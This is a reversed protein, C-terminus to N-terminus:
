PAPPSHGGRDELAGRPTDGPALPAGQYRHQAPPPPPDLWYTYYSELTDRTWAPDHVWYLAHGSGDVYELAVHRNQSANAKFRDAHRYGMWTDQHSHLALLPAKVRGVLEVSQNLARLADYGFGPGLERVLRDRYVRWSLRPLYDSLGFTAIEREGLGLGLERDVLEVHDRLAKLFFAAWPYRIQDLGTGKRDIERALSEPDFAGSILLGADVLGEDDRAMAQVVYDASLSVGYLGVRTISDAWPSEKRIWRLAARIDAGELYGGSGLVKMERITAESMRTALLMVHFKGSMAVLRATEGLYGSLHSGFTGPLLVILPRQTEDVLYLAAALTLDGAPVKTRQFGEPLLERARLFQDIKGQVRKREDTTHRVWYDIPHLVADWPMWHWPKFVRQRLRSLYEEHSKAHVLAPALGASLITLLIALALPCRIVRIVSLLYAIPRFSNCIRKQGRSEPVGEVRQVSGRRM